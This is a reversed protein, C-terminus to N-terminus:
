IIKLLKDFEDFLCIEEETFKKKLEPNDVLYKKTNMVKRTLIKIDKFHVCDNGDKIIEELIIKIKNEDKGWSNEVIPVFKDFQSRTVPTMFKFFNIPRKSQPMKKFIFWVMERLLVKIHPFVTTENVYINNNNLHTINNSLNKNNNKLEAIKDANKAVIKELELLRSEFSPTAV